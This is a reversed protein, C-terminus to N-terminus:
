SLKTVIWPEFDGEVGFNRKVSTRILEEELATFKSIGVPKRAGLMKGEPAREIVRGIIIFRGDRGDFLCAIGEEHQVEKEDVGEIFKRFDRLLVRWRTEGGM